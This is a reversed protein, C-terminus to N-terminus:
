VHLNSLMMAFQNEDESDIDLNEDDPPLVFDKIQDCCRKGLSGRLDLLFCNQLDLSELLPCGDLIAELGVNTLRNDIMSLHRLEPMTKAIVFADDNWKMYEESILRSFKLSKLLPCSQGIVELSGKCPKSFTIDLEELMPFKNVVESFQNYSIYQCDTLRIRRLQSGCSAIYQLLNDTCFSVIEIDELQGCSREAAYRCINVLDEDSYRSTENNSMHITRWMSPDKCINWWLPCVLCISTVINIIDLRQLINRTIDIPLELWNPGM